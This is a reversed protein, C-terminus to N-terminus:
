GTRSRLVCCFMVWKGRLYTEFRSGHFVLPTATEAPNIGHQGGYLSIMEHLTVRNVEAGIVNCTAKESFCRASVVKGM